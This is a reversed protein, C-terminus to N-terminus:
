NWTRRETKATWKEAHNERHSRTSQWFKNKRPYGCFCFLGKTQWIQQKLHNACAWSTCYYVLFLSCLVSVVAIFFLTFFNVDAAQGWLFLWCLLVVIDPFPLPKGPHKISDKESWEKNSFSHKEKHINDLDWLQFTEENTQHKSEGINSCM